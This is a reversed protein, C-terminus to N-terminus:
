SLPAAPSLRTKRAAKSPTASSESAVLPNNEGLPSPILAQLQAGVEEKLNRLVQKSMPWPAKVVMRRLAEEFYIDIHFVTRVDRVKGDDDQVPVYETAIAVCSTKDLWSLTRYDLEFSKDGVIITATKTPESGILIDDLRVASLNEM